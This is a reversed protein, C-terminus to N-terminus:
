LRLVGMMPSLHPSYSQESSQCLSHYRGTGLCRTCDGTRQLDGRPSWRVTSGEKAQRGAWFGIFQSDPSWFPLLAGETQAIRQAEPSSLARIWLFSKGSADTAAFALMQGDPSLAIHEFPHWNRHLTVGEPLGLSLRVTNLPRPKPRFQLWIVLVLGLLGLVGAIFLASTRWSRPSVPSPLPTVVEKPVGIPSPWHFEPVYSGSPLEIRVVPTQAAESYYQSLRKRVETARVRVVADNSTDYDVPRGFMEAGIM